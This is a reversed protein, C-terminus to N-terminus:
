AWSTRLEPSMAASIRLRANAERRARFGIRWLVAVLRRALGRYSSASPTFGMAFVVVFSLACTRTIRNQAAVRSDWAGRLDGVGNADTDQFSRPYIEYIVASKWWSADSM